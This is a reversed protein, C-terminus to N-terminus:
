EKLNGCGPWKCKVEDRTRVGNEDTGKGGRPGQAQNGELVPKIPSMIKRRRMMMMMMMMMMAMM